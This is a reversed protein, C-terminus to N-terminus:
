KSTRWKLNTRKDTLGNRRFWKLFCKFPNHFYITIWATIRRIHQEIKSLTSGNSRSLIVIKDEAYNTHIVNIWVTPLLFPIQRRYFLHHHHDDDHHLYDVFYRVTPHQLFTAIGFIIAIAFGARLRYNEWCIITPAFYWNKRKKWKVSIKILTITARASYHFLRSWKVGRNLLVSFWLKDFIFEFLNWWFFSSYFRSCNITNVVNLVAAEWIWGLDIFATSTLPLM